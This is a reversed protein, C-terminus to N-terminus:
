RKPAFLHLLEVEEGDIIWNGDLHQCQRFGYSDFLEIIEVGRAARIVTYHDWDSGKIFIVAGNAARKAVVDPKPQEIHDVPIGLEDLMEAVDPPDMGETTAAFLNGGKATWIWQIAKTFQEGAQELTVIKGRLHLLNVAAYLHCLYDLNGQQYPFPPKQM